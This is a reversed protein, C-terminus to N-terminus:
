IINYNIYFKGLHQLNFSTKLKDFEDKSEINKVDIDRIKDRMYLFLKKYILKITDVSMDLQRAVDEAINDYRM